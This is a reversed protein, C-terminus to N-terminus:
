NVHSVTVVPIEPSQISSPWLCLFGYKPSDLLKDDCIETDEGCVVLVDFGSFDKVTFGSVQIGRVPRKVSKVRVNETVFDGLDLGAGTICIDAQSSEFSKKLQM